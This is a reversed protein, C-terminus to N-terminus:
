PTTAFVANSLTINDPVSLDQCLFQLFLDTGSPIGSPWPAAQSYSGAGDTVRLFQAVFPNAFVTGGFAPLPVSSGSLWGLVLENPPGDVLDVQVTSGATLASSTTLNPTGNVGPAGGGLDAFTIIPDPLTNDMVGRGLTSTSWDTSHQNLIGVIKTTEPGTPLQGPLHFVVWGTRYDQQEMNVDPVRAGNSAIIDASDFTSITGFHDSSCDSGEMFRLESNGADMEAASVYGMLYLDTYSFVGGPIDANFGLAGLFSASSSGVWEGIEMGSAQGDIQWNWHASRGCIFDDGQMSRGDLLPDLFLGYRHEFEQGLALRTFDAGSGTGAEWFSANVDWMMVYGEVQDGVIGFDPRLNFLTSGGGFPSLDGIGSVDNELPLYFAAGILHDPTFDLWYGMFDFNDGREAILANAAETMLDFLDDNSFNSLLLSASDEYLFLDSATVTPATGFYQVPQRAVVHDPRHTIPAARVGSRLADLYSHAGVSAELFGCAESPPASDQMAVTPVSQASVPHTFLTCLVLTPVLFESRM